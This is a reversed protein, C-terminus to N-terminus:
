EILCKETYQNRENHQLTKLPCTSEYIIVILKLSTTRHGNSSYNIFKM